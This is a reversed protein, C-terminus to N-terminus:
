TSGIRRYHKRCLDKAYHKGLCGKEKCGRYPKKPNETALSGIHKLRANHTSCLGNSHTKRDCGSVECIPEYTGNPLKHVTFIDGYRHWRRYHKGCWGRALVEKDCGSVSCYNTMSQVGNWMVINELESAVSGRGGEAAASFPTINM